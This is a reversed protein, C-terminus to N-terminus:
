AGRSRRARDAAPRFQSVTPDDTIWFRWPHETASRIGVRPGCSVAADVVPRGSALHVAADARTVDTGVLSLDLDLSKALRAPGRALDRAPAAPRRVRVDDEGAIVEGGRLLVASAHGDPGCVVNACFHMGYTFYVYLHGPPGFM